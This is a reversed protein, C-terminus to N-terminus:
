LKPLDRLQSPRSLADRTGIKVPRSWRGAGEIRETEIDHRTVHIAQGGPDVLVIDSLMAQTKAKLTVLPAFERFCCEALTRDDLGRREKGHRRDVFSRRRLIPLPTNSVNM